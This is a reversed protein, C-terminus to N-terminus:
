HRLTLREKGSCHIFLRSVLQSRMGDRSQWSGLTSLSSNSDGLQERGGGQPEGAEGRAWRGGEEGVSVCFLCFVM